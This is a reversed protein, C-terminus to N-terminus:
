ALRKHWIHLLSTSSGLPSIMKTYVDNNNLPNSDKNCTPVNNCTSVNMGICADNNNLPYLVKNCTSIDSSTSVINLRRSSLSGLNKNCTYDNNCAYVVNLHMSTKDCNMVPGNFNTNCGDFVYSSGFIKVKAVIRETRLDQILCYTPFFVFEVQASVFIKYVSLLNFKFDPTFLVDKLILNPALSIYGMQTVYNISGSPLQVHVSGYTPTLSM